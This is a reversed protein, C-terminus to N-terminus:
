LRRTILEYPTLAGLCESQKHIGILCWYRYPVLGTICIGLAIAINEKCNAMALLHRSTITQKLAVTDGIFEDILQPGRAVSM